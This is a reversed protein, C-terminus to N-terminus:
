RNLVATLNRYASFMEHENLPTGELRERLQSEAVIGARLVSRCLELDKARGVKLKVVLLDAPALAVTKPTEPVNVLRQEWGPPLTEAISTRMLDAHYGTRQAFLSGEGVAEHLVAALQEDCPEVLLDADFTTELPGGPDGLQPATALLSSSGLVM